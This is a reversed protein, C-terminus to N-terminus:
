YDGKHCASDSGTNFLSPPRIPLYIVDHLLATKAEQVQSLIM